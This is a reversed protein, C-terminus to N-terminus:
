LLQFISYSCMGTDACELYPVFANEGSGICYLEPMLALPIEGRLKGLPVPGFRESSMLRALPTPESETGNDTWNVVADWFQQANPPTSTRKALWERADLDMNYTIFDSMQTKELAAKLEPSTQMSKGIETQAIRETTEIDKGRTMQYIREFTQQVSSM